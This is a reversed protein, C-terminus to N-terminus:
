LLGQLYALIAESDCRTCDAGVADVILEPGTFGFLFREVLLGDTLATLQGDGDVDFLAPVDFRQAFVDNKQTPDIFGRWAVVFDGDSDIGVAPVAEVSAGIADMPIADGTPAGSARFHRAFVRYGDSPEFRHWAVVFDGDADVAVAPQFESGVRDGAPNFVDGLEAGSTDFRRAFVRGYVQSATVFRGDSAVGVVPEIEHLPAGTSFQLGVASGASNFRRGFAYHVGPHFPDEDRWVIVFNGSPDVGVHPDGQVAFPGTVTLETGQPAGGSDFRRAFIDFTQWTVVFAGAEDSGVSPLRQDGASNSNVQFEMAVPGGSSAFRRGSIGSDSGDPSGWVVIFDGDADSAM